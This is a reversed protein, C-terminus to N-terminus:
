KKKKISYNYSKNSKQVRKMEQESMTEAEEIQLSYASNISDQRATEHTASWKDHRDEIYIANQKVVTRAKDFERKDVLRMAEELQENSIFLTVQQEVSKNFSALFDEESDTKEMKNETYISRREYNGWVEDYNLQSRFTLPKNQDQIIKYAILIAKKEESFVDMFNISLGNITKEYNYGYVKEITVSPPISINLKANQAVVSLLGKLEKNFIQPIADPHEIFHYNGSGYEALNLMLDENFDVGVGFTSLTIGNEQNKLKAIDQLKSIDTIGVNALGDSLLLVRNVYGNKFTSKVEAYGELLGGSLNTSGSSYIKDIKSKIRNKNEVKTSHLITKVESEYTVISLLDDPTLNDVIFKAAEKVYKIKDGEMSGSRDIVLSINLPLRKSEDINAKPANIEIYLYGERTSPINMFKTHNLASKIQLEDIPVSLDQDNFSLIKPEPDAKQTTTDSSNFNCAM